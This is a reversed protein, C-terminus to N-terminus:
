PALLSECAKAPKPLSLLAGLHLLHLAPNIEFLSVHMDPRSATKLAGPRPHTHAPILSRRHICSSTTCRHYQVRHGTTQRRDDTTKRGHLFFFFSQRRQAASRQPQLLWHRHPKTGEPTTQHRRTDDPTDEAPPARSSLATPDLSGLNSYSSTMYERLLYLTSCRCNYGARSPATCQLRMLSNDRQKRGLM